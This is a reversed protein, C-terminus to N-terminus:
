NKDTTIAIIVENYIHTIVHYFWEAPGQTKLMNIYQFTLLVIDDIHQLGEETLEVYVVFFQFGRASLRKGSGLSNCWGKAKLASLLSGEGEHGLM